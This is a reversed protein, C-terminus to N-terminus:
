GGRLESAEGLSIGLARATRVVNGDPPVTRIKGIAEAIPVPVVDPPALATMTGFKKEAILQVAGAGFRTALLRDFTTPAGGRQLHGLRVTRTEKGTRKQIEAAVVDGVGGLNAEKQKIQKGTTVYGGGAERAGEAAV